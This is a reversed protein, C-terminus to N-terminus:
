QYYTEFLRKAIPVAYESGSGLEEVLVCVALDKEAEVSFGVFWAHSKSKDSSFEASGTKGAITVGLDRLKKGTGETVVQEMYETLLAAEVDTMLNGYASPRYKRVLGGTYSEIRDILYPEMLVGQNSIASAIMAMHFPSVMTQGQGVATMIKEDSGSERTLAFSSRSYPLKIPLAEGFLLKKCTQSFDDPNLDLGIQGFASNCSNAFAKQLSQVGHANNHYCHITYGGETLKGNCNYSFPDLIPLGQDDEKAYERFYELLTVIKFVSGPAYLGQTARNWLVSQSSELANWNAWQEDIANPDFDPTSVMCLIKGTSPEIAVVAGKMSGLGAYAARQLNVNLTTILADGMNKEEQLENVVREPIAANSTLLPFNGLLEIGSKGHSAFGVVHAFMDGFPYVRTETGDLAVKTEALVTGDDALISGRVVQQALLEQRSNYTNNIVDEALVGEFYVFYGILAVFLGTFLYTVVALEQNKKQKKNKNRKESGQAENQKKM